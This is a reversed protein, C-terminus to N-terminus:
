RRCSQRIRAVFQEVIIPATKVGRELLELELQRNWEQNNARALLWACNGRLAQYYMAGFKTNRNSLTELAGIADATYFSVVSLFGAQNVRRAAALLRRVPPRQQAIRQNIRGPLNANEEKILQELLQTRQNNLKPNTRRAANLDAQLKGIRQRTEQIDRNIADRAAELDDMAAEAIVERGLKRIEADNGLLLSSYGFLGFLLVVNTVLKRM